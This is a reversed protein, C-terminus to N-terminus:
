DGALWRNALLKLDLWDVYLNRDVDAVLHIEEGDYDCDPEWWAQTRNTCALWDLALFAFDGFSVVGSGDLDEIRHLVLVEGDCDNSGIASVRDNGDSVILTGDSAVVPMSLWSDSQYRAVHGGNSDVVCLYGDSGAAYVLGDSGVALTYDGYIGLAALWKVSGNPDIAALCRWPVWDEPPHWSDPYILGCAGTFVAYITGDPGLALEAWDGAPAYESCAPHPYYQCYPLPIDLSWIISGTNPDIAYFNPESFLRQYITGDAAVVPSAYPWDLATASDPFRADLPREFSCVWKVTGDNPDLAYLNPDNLAGLYVTGDVGIAPSAFIAGGMLGFGTTEFTWLESGDRGLAYLVGDGSGVLVTNGDVSVAPSSYIFADATHTWRLSGDIDVAFLTGDESGVYVTGDPGITPSSLLPSNTDYSWLPLGNADLTYLRGGECAIHVRDDKGITVSGAPEGETEFRWKLCGLEPGYTNSLGSRDFDGGLSRWKAPVDPGPSDPHITFLGSDTLIANPDPTSPVVSVLCQNSDVGGPLQWIYSGVDGANADIISWDGGGDTSLLIDVTGGIGYSDWNIQHTSTAAWVDGAQPAIVTIWPVLYEDAGMDMRSGMIRPQGDMDVSDSGLWTFPDGSNICPSGYRLHLDGYDDNAAESVDPTCPDDGWGDGGDNPERLFMPDDDINGAEQGGFPIYWDNPDEDQVCSFTVDPYGDVQALDVRSGSDTNGWVISNTIETDVCAGYYNSCLVGGGFGSVAINGGITCSGITAPWFRCYIGGGDGAAVNGSVVCTDMTLCDRGGGGDDGAANGIIACRMVENCLYLGGGDMAAWNDKILCHEVRGCEYLAGGSFDSSNGQINCDKITTTNGFWWSSLSSIGGGGGTASNESITCNSVTGRALYIGGGGPGYPGDCEGATNGNISCDTITGETCYVGGGCGSASNRRISCHLVSAYNIYLGGGEDASNGAVNCDTVTAESCHVGGGMAASNGAINCDTMTSGLGLIGGGYSTANNDAIRCGIISGEAQHIGGGENATNGSIECAFIVCGDAWLGGGRSFAANNEVTCNIIALDYCLVGGGSFTATNNSIRCNMIIPASGSWCHIGGGYDAYGNTITLGDVVSNADESSHFHFGRHQNSDTGNCDIITAAVFYPDEPAVSQVTIARGAFDIDRNGPGTYTGPFVYITDGDNSDDIAAQITNFDAPGDDDVIIIEARGLSVATLVAFVSIARRM